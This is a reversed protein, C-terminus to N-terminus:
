EEYRIYRMKVVKYSVSELEVVGYFVVDWDKDFVVFDVVLVFFWRNGGM